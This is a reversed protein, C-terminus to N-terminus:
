SLERIEDVALSIEEANQSVTELFIKLESFKDSYQKREKQAQELLLTIDHLNKDQVAEATNDGAKKGKAAELCEDYDKNRSAFYEATHAGVTKGDRDKIIFVTNEPYTEILREYTMIIKKEGENKEEEADDEIPIEECNIIKGDWKQKILDISAAMESGYRKSSVYGRTLNVFQFRDGNKDPLILVDENGTERIVRYRTM